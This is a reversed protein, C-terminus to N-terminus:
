PHKRLGKVKWVSYFGMGGASINFRISDDRIFAPPYFHTHGFGGYGPYTLIGERDITLENKQTYAVGNVVAISEDGWRVIVKDKHNESRVVYGSYDYATDHWVMVHIQLSDIWKYEPYTYDIHFDFIGTFKDRYDPSDQLKQCSTAILLLLLFCSIHKM